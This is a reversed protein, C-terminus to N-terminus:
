LIGGLSDDAFSGDPLNEIGFDAPPQKPERRRKKKRPKSGVSFIDLVTSQMDQPDPKRLSFDYMSRKTSDALVEYALSVEKFREEAQAEKCVDPHWRKALQRYAAKITDIGVDPKVGLIEYHTPM